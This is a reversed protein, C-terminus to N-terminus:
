CQCDDDSSGCLTQTRPWPRCIQRELPPHPEDLQRHSLSGVENGDERESLIIHTKVGDPVTYLQLQHPTPHYIKSCNDFSFPVFSYLNCFRNWAAKPNM